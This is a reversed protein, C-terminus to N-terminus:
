VQQENKALRTTKLALSRAAEVLFHVTSGDAQTLLAATRRVPLRRASAHVEYVGNWAKVSHV